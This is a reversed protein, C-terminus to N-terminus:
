AAGQVTTDGDRRALSRLRGREAVTLGGWFGEREHWVAYERCQVLIPCGRCMKRLTQTVLAAEAPNEMYFLDVDLGACSADQWPVDVFRVGGGGVM